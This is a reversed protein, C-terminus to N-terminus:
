ESGLWVRKAVKGRFNCDFELFAIFTIVSSNSSADDVFARITKLQHRQFIM